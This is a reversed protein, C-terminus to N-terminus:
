LFLPVTDLLPRDATPIINPLIGAHTRELLAAVDSAVLQTFANPFWQNL